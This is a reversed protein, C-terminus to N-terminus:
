FAMAGRTRGERPGTRCVTGECILILSVVMAGRSFSGPTRLQMHSGTMKDDSM